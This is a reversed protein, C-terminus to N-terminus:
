RRKDLYAQLADRAAPSKLIETFGTAEQDIRQVVERREGRMLRRALRVAEPPKAALAYAAEHGASEVEEPPVVRNVLGAERAARADFHDGMVMLAFARHYGLLRPGLLSSGADPALGIDVFPAAFSAWESAVVYDCLFLLTTGFGFVPGDVAAVVPKDITALTKTLRIVSSGMAGDEAFTALERADHGSTFIGPGGTILIARVRSSSEGFAIADAAAECMASTLANEAEIRDFRIAQVGDTVDATLHTIM